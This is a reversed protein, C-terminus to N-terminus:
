LAKYHAPHLSRSGAAEVWAPHSGTNMDAAAEEVGEEVEGELFLLIQEDKVLVSQPVEEEVVEEEVMVPLSLALEEVEVVMVEQNLLEEVGVEEEEAEKHGQEVAVEEEVEQHGQEVEVEEEEEVERHNQEVGVEEEGEEEGQRCQEVEEEMVLFLLGVEEVVVGLSHVEEGGEEVLLWRHEELEELPEPSRAEEEVMPATHKPDSGPSVVLSPQQPAEWVSSAGRSSWSGAASWFTFATYLHHQLHLCLHHRASNWTKRIM